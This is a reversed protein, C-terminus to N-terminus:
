EMWHAVNIAEWDYNFRLGPWVTIFLETNKQAPLHTKANIMKPVLGLKLEMYIDRVEAGALNLDAAKVMM